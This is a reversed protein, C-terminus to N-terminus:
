DSDLSRPEFGRSAKDQMCRTAVRTKANKKEFSQRALRRGRCIEKIDLILVRQLREGDKERFKKEDIARAKM